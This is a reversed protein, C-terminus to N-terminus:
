VVIEVQFYWYQLSNLRFDLSVESIRCFIHFIVGSKHIFVLNTGTSNIFYEMLIDRSIYNRIFVVNPYFSINYMRGSIKRFIGGHKYVVNCM